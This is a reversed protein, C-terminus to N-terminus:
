KFISLFFKLRNLRMWLFQTFHRKIEDHGNTREDTQRCRAARSGSSPNKDFNIDSSTELINQPFELKILIQCSYLSSFKLVLTNKHYYRASKNKIDSVNRVFNHPFISTCIKHESVKKRFDQRNQSLTSFTTSYSLGSIVYYMAAYISKAHQIFLALTSVKKPACCGRNRRKQCVVSPRNIPGYCLGRGSLVCCECSVSMWAGSRFESGCDWSNLPLLGM